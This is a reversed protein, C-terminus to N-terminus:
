TRKCARKFNCYRCTYADENMSFDEMRAINKVPDTLRARMQDASHRIQAKTSTTKEISMQTREDQGLRLNSQHEIIQESPKHWKLSGYLAYITLQLDVM